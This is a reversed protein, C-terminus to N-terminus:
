RSEDIDRLCEDPKELEEVLWERWQQRVYHATVGYRRAVRTPHTLLHLHMLSALRRCVKKGLPHEGKRTM